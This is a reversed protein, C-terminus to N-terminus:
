WSDDVCCYLGSHIYVNVLLLGLWANTARLQLCLSPGAGVLTLGDTMWLSASAFVASAFFLLYRLLLFSLCALGAMASM